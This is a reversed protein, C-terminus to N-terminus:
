QQEGQVQREQEWVEQLGVKSQGEKVKVSEAEVFYHRGNREKRITLQGQPRRAKQNTKSRLKCGQYVQVLAAVNTSGTREKM